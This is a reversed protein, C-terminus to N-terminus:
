LLKIYWFMKTDAEKHYCDFDTRESSQSTVPDTTGDLNTLYNTQFFTLVNPM